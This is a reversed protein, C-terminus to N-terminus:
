LQNGCILYGNAPLRRRELCVFLPESITITFAPILHHTKTTKSTMRGDGVVDATVMFRIDNHIFQIFQQSKLTQTAIRRKASWWKQIIRNKKNLVADKLPFAKVL